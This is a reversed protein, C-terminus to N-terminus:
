HDGGRLHVAGDAADILVPDHTAVVVSARSTLRDLITAIAETNVADLNASPEDAFILAKTSALARALALRQLEGGSLSYALQNGKSGLGVTQLAQEARERAELLPLGGSLPAILANDLVTRRGLANSGQPVWAVLQPSPRVTRGGPEESLEVQGRDLPQYGALVALLSSKGSGSPGVLASVKGSPFSATFNEFVVQGDFSLAADIM